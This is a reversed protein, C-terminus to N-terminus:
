TKLMSDEEQSQQRAELKMYGIELWLEVRSRQLTERRGSAGIVTVTARDEDVIALRSGGYPSVLDFCVVDPERLAGSSSADPPVPQNRKDIFTTRKIGLLRSAKRTNGGCLALAETLAEYEIRRLMDGLPGSYM